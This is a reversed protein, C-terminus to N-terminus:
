RSSLVHSIIIHFLSTFLLSFKSWLICFFQFFSIVFLTLRSQMLDPSLYFIQFPSFLLPQYFIPISFNHGSIVFSCYFSTIVYPQSESPLNSFPFFYLRTFYPYSSIIVLFFLLVFFDLMTIFAPVRLSPKFIPFVSAILIFIHVFQSWLFCFFM